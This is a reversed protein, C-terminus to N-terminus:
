KFVWFKQAVFSIPISIFVNILYAPIEGLGMQILWGVVIITMGYLAAWLALYRWLSASNGSRFVGHRSQLFGSAISVALGLFAALRYDMQVVLICLSYVGFNIATNILGAGIFLLTQPTAFIALQAAIFANIKKM